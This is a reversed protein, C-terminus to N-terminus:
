FIGLIISYYAVTFGKLFTLAVQHLWSPHITGWGISCVAMGSSMSQSISLTVTSTM